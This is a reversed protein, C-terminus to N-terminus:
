QIKEEGIKLEWRYFFFVMGAIVLVTAVKLILRLAIEGALASYIITTVASVAAMFAVFMTLYTLWRRVNSTRLAPDKAYNKVHSITLGLFIPLSVILAAVSNLVAMLEWESATTSDQIPDPVWINILAAIIMGLSIASMYLTAFTALYLFAERASGSREPVPIPVLFPGDAYHHLARSVEDDPWGARALADRIDSRNVGKELADHVFMTLESM